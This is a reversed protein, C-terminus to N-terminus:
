RALKGTKPGQILDDFWNVLNLSGTGSLCVSLGWWPVVSLSGFLNSMVESFLAPTGNFLASSRNWVPMRGSRIRM